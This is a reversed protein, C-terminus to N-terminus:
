KYRKEHNRPVSIFNFNGQNYPNLRVEYRYFNSYINRAYITITNSIAQAENM